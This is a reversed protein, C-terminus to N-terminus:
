TTVQNKGHVIGCIYFNFYGARFEIDSANLRPALPHQVLTRRLQLLDMLAIDEICQLTKIKM